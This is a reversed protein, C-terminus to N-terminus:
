ELSIDTTEETREKNKEQVPHLEDHIDNATEQRNSASVTKDILAFDELSIGNKRLNRKTRNFDPVYLHMDEQSMQYIKSDPLDKKYEEILAEQLQPILHELGLKKLDPIVGEELLDPVTYADYRRSIDFQSFTQSGTIAKVLALVLNEELNYSCIKNDIDRYEQLSNDLMNQEEETLSFDVPKVPAFFQRIRSIIKRIPSVNQLAQLQENKKKSVSGITQSYEDLKESSKSLQDILDQIIADGLFSLSVVDYDELESSFMSIGARKFEQSLEVLKNNLTTSANPIDVNSQGMNRANALMLSITESQNSGVESIKNFLTEKYVKEFKEIRQKDIAM